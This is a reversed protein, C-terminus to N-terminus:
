LMNFSIIVCEGDRGMKELMNFDVGYYFWSLFILMKGVKFM